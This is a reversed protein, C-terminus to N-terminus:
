RRDVIISITGDANHREGHRVRYETVPPIIYDSRRRRLRPPRNRGIGHGIAFGAAFCAVALAYALWLNM